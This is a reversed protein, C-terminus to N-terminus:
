FSILDKEDVGKDKDNALFLYKVGGLAVLILGLWVGLKWKRFQWDTKILM